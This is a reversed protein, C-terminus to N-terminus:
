GSLINKEALISRSIGYLVSTNWDNIYNFAKYNNPNSISFISYYTSYSKTGVDLWPIPIRNKDWVVGEQNFTVGLLKTEGSEHFSHLYDRTIDQFFNEQIANAIQVYKEALQKKRVGYISKLRIKISNGSRDRIDILYIRGINFRYGSIGKVGYRWDLIESKMFKTPSGSILDANDFEIFESTITIQRKRDFLSSQLILQVSQAM